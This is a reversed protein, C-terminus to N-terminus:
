QMHQLRTPPTRATPGRHAAGRTTAGPLSRRARTPSHPRISRRHSNNPNRNLAIDKLTKAFTPIVSKYLHVQDYLCDLDLTPHHALQVNPKLACDRSISANIRQITAPHFDKRPLLTSIVVRSNPFTHTAKEIVGKVATAVKDQLVRLDNTGTHIIIHSPSGIKEENLLDLAGQINPCWLKTVKHRPFLKKEEIYKGNSDILLVIEPIHTDETPPTAETHNNHEICPASNLQDPNIQGMNNLNNDLDSTPQNTRQEKEHRLERIEERMAKLQAQYSLREEQLEKMEIRLASVERKLDDRREEAAQHNSLPVKRQKETNKTQSTQLINILERMEVLEIELGTFRERMDMLSTCLKSTLEDSPDVEVVEVVEM